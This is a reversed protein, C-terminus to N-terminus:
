SSSDAKVNPRFHILGGVLEVYNRAAWVDGIFTPPPAMLTQIKTQVCNIVMGFQHAEWDMADLLLFMIERVNALNVNAFNMYSFLDLASCPGTHGIAVGVSPRKLVVM